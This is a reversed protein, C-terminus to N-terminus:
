INHRKGITSEHGSAMNKINQHHRIILLLCIVSLYIFQEPFFYWSYFPITIATILASLSSIRFGWACILWCFIAYSGLQWNLVVLVGFFTAVGKGGKFRFFIPFLHGLFAAIAVLGIITSSQQLEIALAVPVVGKLSDGILTCIAAFKGGLRLVNTAGPNGSGADRPDGLGALRCIIIASSVSGLLYAGIILYIGLGEM